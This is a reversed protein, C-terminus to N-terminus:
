HHIEHATEERNVPDRPTHRGDHARAPGSAPRTAGTIRNVVFYLMANEFLCWFISM